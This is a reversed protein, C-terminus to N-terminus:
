IVQQRKVVTSRSDVAKFLLEFPLHDGIDRGYYAIRIMGDPGILFDAPLQTLHGDMPGPLFGLCMARLAEGMRFAFASLLGRVSTQVGYQRYLQHEPDPIV